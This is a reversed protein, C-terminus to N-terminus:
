FRALLPPAPSFLNFHYNVGLRFTHLQTRTTMFHKFAALQNANGVTVEPINQAGPKGLDVFSYEVKASWNPLFAYEVGTGVTWGTNVKSAGRIGLTGNSNMFDQYTNVQGYAFGGTVYVMLNPWALPVYGLKGRVTGFWDVHRTDHARLSFATAPFIAPPRVQFSQGAISSGDFDTELGAVIHPTLRLNYGVQGGGIVGSMGPAPLQSVATLPTAVGNQVRTSQIIGDTQSFGGGLNAGVYLGDWTSFGNPSLFSPQPPPKRAPLDAANLTAPLLGLGWCVIPLFRRYAM